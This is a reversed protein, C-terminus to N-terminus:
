SMIGKITTRNARFYRDFSLMVEIVREEPESIALSNPLTLNIGDGDEIEEASHVLDGYLIGEETAIITITIFQYTDWLRYMKRIIGKNSVTMRMRCIEYECETAFPKAKGQCAIEVPETETWESTKEIVQGDDKWEGGQGGHGYGREIKVIQIDGLDRHSIDYMGAQYWNPVETKYIKM